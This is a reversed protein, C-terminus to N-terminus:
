CISLGKAQLEFDIELNLQHLQQQGFGPSALIPTLQALFVASNLAWAPGPVAPVENM